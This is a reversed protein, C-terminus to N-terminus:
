CAFCLWIQSAVAHGMMNFKAVDIALETVAIGDLSHGGGSCRMRYPPLAEFLQKAAVSACDHGHALLASVGHQHWWTLM